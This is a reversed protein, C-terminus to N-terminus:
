NRRCGLIHSVMWLTDTRWRWAGAYEHIQVRGSVRHHLGYVALDSRVGAELNALNVKTDVLM